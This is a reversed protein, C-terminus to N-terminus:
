LAGHKDTKMLSISPFMVRKPTRSFLQSLDLTLLATQYISSGGFFKDQKVKEEEGRYSVWTGASEWYTVIWYTREPASFCMRM